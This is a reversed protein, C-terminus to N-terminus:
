IIDYYDYYNYIMDYYNYLIYRFIIKTKKKKFKDSGLFTWM